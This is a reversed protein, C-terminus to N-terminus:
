AEALCTFVFSTKIQNTLLRYSSGHECTSRKSKTRNKNNNASFSLILGIYYAVIMISESENTVLCCFDLNTVIFYSELCKLYVNLKEAAVNEHTPRAQM